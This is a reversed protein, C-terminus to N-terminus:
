NEKAQKYQCIDSANEEVNLKLLKIFYRESFGSVFAVLIYSGQSEVIVDSLVGWSMLVALILAAFAGFIPRLQFLLVSIEFDGLNTQSGRVQLLGSM